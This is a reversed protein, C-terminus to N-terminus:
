IYKPTINTSTTKCIPCIYRKLIQAVITQSYISSYNKRTIYLTNIGFGQKSWHSRPKGECEKENVIKEILTQYGHELVYHTEAVTKEYSKNLDYNNDHAFREFDQKLEPTFMTVIIDAYDPKLKIQSLPIGYDSHESRSM